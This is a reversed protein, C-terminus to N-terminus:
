CNSTLKSAIKEVMKSKRLAKLESDAIHVGVRQLSAQLERLPKDKGAAILTLIFESM